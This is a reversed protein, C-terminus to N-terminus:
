ADFERYRREVSQHKDSCSLKMRFLVTSKSNVRYSPIIATFYKTNHLFEINGNNHGSIMEGSPLHIPSNAHPSSRGEEQLHSTRKDKPAGDSKRESDRDRGGGKLLRYESDKLFESCVMGFVWDENVQSIEQMWSFNMNGSMDEPGTAIDVEGDVDSWRDSGRPALPLGESTSHRQVRGDADGGKDKHPHIKNLNFDFHNKNGAYVRPNTHEILKAFSLMDALSTSPLRSCHQLACHFHHTADEPASAALRKFLAAHAKANHPDVKLASQFCAISQDDSECCLGRLVLASPNEVTLKKMDNGSLFHFVIDVQFRFRM